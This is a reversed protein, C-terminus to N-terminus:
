VIAFRYWINQYYENSLPTFMVGKSPSVHAMIESNIVLGCHHVPMGQRKFFAIVGEEPLGVQNSMNLLDNITNVGLDRGYYVRYVETVFYLPDIGGSAKTKGRYMYPTGHWNVQIFDRLTM